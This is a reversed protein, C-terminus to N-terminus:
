IMFLALIANHDSVNKTDIAFAEKLTVNKYLIHDLPKNGFCKINHADKIEALNMGLHKAFDNLFSLRKKSWTNFDGAIILPTDIYKLKEYLRNLEKEFLKQPVFNIAHINVVTVTKDFIKHTTILLTKKTAVFFEKYTTTIDDKEIIDFKSASLVGFTKHPLKINDSHEKAYGKLNNHDQLVAEQFLVIDPNYNELLSQLTNEFEKTTNEKHVNWVLVSFPKM